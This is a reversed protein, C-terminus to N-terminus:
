PQVFTEPIKKPEKKHYKGIVEPGFCIIINLFTLVLFKEIWFYKLIM